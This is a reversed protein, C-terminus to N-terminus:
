LYHFEPLKLLAAKTAGPLVIRQPSVTLSAYPAAVLHAGLGLFGGVSLIAFLVKDRGVILDDIKGIQEGHDNFVPRGVMQTARYGLAVAQVNVVVLHVPPPGSPAAPASGPALGLALAAAATLALLGRPARTAPQLIM